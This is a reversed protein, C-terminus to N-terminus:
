TIYFVTGTVLQEEKIQELIHKLGSPNSVKYVGKKATKDFLPTHALVTTAPYLAKDWHHTRLMYCDLENIYNPIRGIISGEQDAWTLDM